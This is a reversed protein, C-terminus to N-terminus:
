DNTSNNASTKQGYLKQYVTSGVFHGGAAQIAWLIVDFWGVSFIDSLNVKGKLDFFEAIQKNGIELTADLSFLTPLYYTDLFAFICFLAFLSKRSFPMKIKRGFLSFFTIGVLITTLLYDFFVTVIFVIM